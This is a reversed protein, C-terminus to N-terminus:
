GKFTNLELFTAVTDHRAAGRRGLVDRLFEELQQSRNTAFADNNQPQCIWTGPPFVVPPEEEQPSTISKPLNQYMWKFHSYRRHITHVQHGCCIKIKYYYAPLNTKGKINTPITTTIDTSQSEILEYGDFKITYFTREFRPSWDEYALYMVPVNSVKTTSTSAM